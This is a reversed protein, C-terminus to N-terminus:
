RLCGSKKNKSNSDVVVNRNNAQADKIQESNVQGIATKGERTFKTEVPLLEIIIDKKVKKKFCGSNFEVSEQHPLGESLITEMRNTEINYVFTRKVNFNKVEVKNEKKSIPTTIKFSLKENRSLYITKDDYQKMADVNYAIKKVNHGDLDMRYFSSCLVDKETEKVTVQDTKANNVSPVQRKEFYAVRENRRLYYIAENNVIIDREKINSAIIKNEKGDSRVSHLRNYSDLYYVYSHDMKVITGFDDALLVRKKGDASLKMLIENRTNTSKRLIYLWDNTSYVIREVNSLIETRNSGDLDICFMPRYDFNGITYYIKNNITDFYDYINDELLIDEKTVLDLVHLDLNYSCPSWVSYVVKNNVVDHLICSSDLVKETKENKINYVLFTTKANEEGEIAEAYTYFINDDIVDMIDVVEPIIVKYTANVMDVYGIEYNNFNRKAHLIKKGFLSCGKKQEDIKVELKKKFFFGKGDKTFYLSDEEDFLYDGLKKTSDIVTITETLVNYACVSKNNKLYFLKSGYCTFLETIGKVVPDKEEVIGDVVKYLAYREGLFEDDEKAPENKKNDKVPAANVEFKKEEKRLVFRQGGIVFLYKNFIFSKNIENIHKISDKYKRIKEFLSLCYDIRDPNGLCSIAENYTSEADIGQELLQRAVEAQNKEIAVKIAPIDELEKVKKVTGIKKTFDDLEAKMQKLMSSEAKYKDAFNIDTKLVKLIHEKCALIKNSIEKYLDFENFLKANDESNYKDILSKELKKLGQIKNLVPISKGKFELYWTKPSSAKSLKIKDILREVMPINLDTTTNFEDWEYTEFLNDIYALADDSDNVNTMASQILESFKEEPSAGGKRDLLEAVQTTVDCFACTVVDANESFSLLAGCNPCKRTIQKEEM